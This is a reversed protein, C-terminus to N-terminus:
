VLNFISHLFFYLFPSSKDCSPISTPGKGTCVVPCFVLSISDLNTSVPMIIIINIENATNIVTNSLITLIACSSVQRHTAIIVCANSISSSSTAANLWFLFLLILVPVRATSKLFFTLKSLSM